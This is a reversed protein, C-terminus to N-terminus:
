TAATLEKDEILPSDHIIHLDRQPFPITIHHENLTQYVCELIQCDNIYQTLVPVWVLVQLNVSNDGFERLVVEVGREKEIELSDLTLGNAWDYLILLCSDLRETGVTTPVDDLYYVTKEMSTFANADGSSIGLSECFHEIGNGKFHESGNFCMHELFHALGRQEDTEQLSGIKQALYFCARNEPWNNHKLYYTLGNPLVGIKITSDIPILMSDNLCPQAVSKVLTFQLTLVFILFEMSHKM